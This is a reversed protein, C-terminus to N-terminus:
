KVYRNEACDLPTVDGLRALNEGLTGKLRAITITDPFVEVKNKKAIQSELRSCTRKSLREARQQLILENAAAINEEQTNISLIQRSSALRRKADLVSGVVGDDM